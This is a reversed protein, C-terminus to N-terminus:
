TDVSTASGGARGHASPAKGVAPVPSPPRYLRNGVQPVADTGIEVAGIDADGGSGDQTASRAAVQGHDGLQELGATGRASSAGFVALSVGVHVLVALQTSVGATTAFLGAAVEEAGNASGAAGSYDNSSQTHSKPGVAVVSSKPPERRYAPEGTRGGAGERM